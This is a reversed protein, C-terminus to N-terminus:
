SKCPEQKGVAKTYSFGYETIKLIYTDNPASFAVDVPNDYPNSAPKAKGSAVKGKGYRTLTFDVASSWRNTIGLRVTSEDVQCLSTLNFDRQKPPAAKGTADFKAKALWDAGKKPDADVEYAAAIYNGAPLVETIEVSFGGSSVSVDSKTLVPTGTPTEGTYVRLDVTAEDFKSGLIYFPSDVDPDTPTSQGDQSIDLKASKGDQAPSAEDTGARETQSSCGVLAIAAVFLLSLVRTIM